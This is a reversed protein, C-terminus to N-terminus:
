VLDTTVNTAIAFSEPRRVVWDLRMVARISTGFKTFLAEDSTDIRMDGWQALVLDDFNGLFLTSLETGTGKTGTKPVQTTGNLGYGLEEELRKKSTLPSILPLGKGEAQGSYMEATRRGLARFVQPHSVYSVKGELANVNELISQMSDFLSWNSPVGNNYAAGSQDFVNIGATNAIGTPTDGAGDGFLGKEDVALAISKAIDNRVIQDMSTNSDRLLEMSMNVLAAIKKPDAQVQAFTLSSDTIEALESLWYATSAGTLKPMQFKGVREPINLIQAGANMLVSKARILDIVTSSVETPVTFGGASDPNITQAKATADTVEKEYGAESWDNSKKAYIAKAFNFKEKGEDVGAISTGMNKKMSNMKAEMEDFSKQIKAIDESQPQLGKEVQSKIAEVTAKLDEQTVNESM